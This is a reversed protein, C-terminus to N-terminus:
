GARLDVVVPLHDSLRFWEAGPTAWDPDTRGPVEAALVELGSDPALLVVDIRTRVSTDRRQEWSTCLSLVDCAFWDTDKPWGATYGCTRVRQPDAWLAAMGAADNAAVTPCLVPDAAEPRLSGVADVLSGPATSSVDGDVLLSWGSSDPAVNVDGALVWRDGVAAGADALLQRLARIQAVRSLAASGGGATLHTGVVRLPAGDVEVDAWAVVRRMTPDVCSAGIHTSGAGLVERDARVLVAVGEPSPKLDCEWQLYAAVVYDTSPLSVLAGVDDAQAEQVVLVDPRFQDLRAAWGAHESYLAGDAQMGLLNWTMVRLGDTGQAPDLPGPPPACGAATLAVALVAGAARCRRLTAARRPQHTTSGRM